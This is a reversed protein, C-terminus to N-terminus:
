DNNLRGGQNASTAWGQLYGVREYYASIQRSCFQALRQNCGQSERTLFRFLPMTFRNRVLPKVLDKAIRGPSNRWSFVLSNGLHAKLEPHKRHLMALSRGGTYAKTIIQELEPNADHYGIAQKNYFIRLGRQAVRYGLEPDSYRGMQEDFFVDEDLLFRRKLSINGTAFYPWDVVDRDALQGWRSVWYHTRYTDPIWPALAVLGLVAENPGPHLHHYRLHEQLLLHDAIIDDDIFLVHEGQALEIGRNRAAGPGCNEQRKYTLSVPASDILSRVLQPTGDTSGDDIVIVEFLTPELTQQFLAALSKQLISCRNYTPIIVSLLKSM